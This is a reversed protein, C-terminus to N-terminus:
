FRFTLNCTFATAAFDDFEVNGHGRADWAEKALGAGISALCSELPGLDLQDAAQTIALGAGLHLQKDYEGMSLSLVGASLLVFPEM